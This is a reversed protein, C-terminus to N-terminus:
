CFFFYKKSLKNLIEMSKNTLMQNVKNSPKQKKIVDHIQKAAVATSASAKAVNGVVDALNSITDKHTSLFNVATDIFGLGVVYKQKRKKKIVLM